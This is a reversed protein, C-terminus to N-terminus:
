VGGPAPPHERVFVQFSIDSPLLTQLPSLLGLALWQVASVFLSSRRDYRLRQWLGTRTFSPLTSRHVERFGHSRLMGALAVPHFYTLHPSPFGRQWM